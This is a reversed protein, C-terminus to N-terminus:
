AGAVAVPHPRPFLIDVETGTMDGRNIVAVRKPPNVASMSRSVVLQNSGAFSIMGPTEMEFRAVPKGSREFKVVQNAGILSAYWFSGDPEVRVYHPKATASYGLAQLDIMRVVEAKNMDVVAIKADDQVCVYLLAPAQPAAQPARVAAAVALAALGAILAGRRLLGSFM